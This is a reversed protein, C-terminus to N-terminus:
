CYNYEECIFENKGIEYLEEGHSFDLISYNNLKDSSAYCYHIKGIPSDCPNQIIEALENDFDNLVVQATRKVYEEFSNITSIQNIKESATIFTINFYNCWPLYGEIGSIIENAIAGGDVYYKGQIQQPPFILPIASTAMLIDVQETINDKENFVFIEFFGTNLNTSGILTPRSPKSTMKNLEKSITKRLPETNYYSWTRQIQNFNHTYVNSNNMQIYINALNDIGDNLNTDVNNYYSLFGANLGGASVGTIMDYKDMAIQSLIGVEVVGFSGGGSFSLINCTQNQNDISSTFQILAQFLFLTLFINQLEFMIFNYIYINYINNM